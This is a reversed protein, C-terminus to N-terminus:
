SRGRKNALMEAAREGTEKVQIGMKAHSPEFDV